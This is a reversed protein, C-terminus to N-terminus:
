PQIVELYFLTKSRVIYKQIKLVTEKLKFTILKFM